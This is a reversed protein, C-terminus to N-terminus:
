GLLRSLPRGPPSTFGPKNARSMQTEIPEHAVWDDRSQVHWSGFLCEFQGFLKGRNGATEFYAAFQERARPGLDYPSNPRQARRHKQIELEMVDRVRDGFCHCGGHPQVNWHERHVDTSAPLHNFGGLLGRLFAGPAHTM